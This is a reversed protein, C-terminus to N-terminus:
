SPDTPIMEGTDDLPIHLLGSLLGDICSVTLCDGVSLDM